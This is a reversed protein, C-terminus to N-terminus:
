RNIAARARQIAANDYAAQSAALYAAYLEPDNTAVKNVADTRNAGGDTLVKVQQEFAAKPDRGSKGGASTVVGIFGETQPHAAEALRALHERTKADAEHKENATQLAAILDAQKAIYAKRADSISANGTLQDLCFGKDNPFEALLENVSAAKPAAEAAGAQKGSDYIAQYADPYQAQFATTPDNSMKLSELFLSQMADDLSAVQDVLGLQQAKAGVHVRGDALARAQPVSMKRGAAVASVFLETTDDVLSQFYKLQDDTVPTGDTGAGKMGGSSVSHVVVGAQEYAKSSDELVLVTGICGVDATSNCYVKDAQSAAWYAASAGCDAIYAYCPKSLGAITDGLDSTGAVTGGPSDILLMIGLVEPDDDALRLARRANVTSTGGFLSQFSTSYKTLPGTLSVKAIGSQVEYGLDTEDMTSDDTDDGGIDPRQSPVPSDPSDATKQRALSEGLAVLDVKMAQQHLQQFRAPEIAWAGFLQDPRCGTATKRSKKAAKTKM